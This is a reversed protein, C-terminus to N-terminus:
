NFIYSILRESDAGQEIVFRIIDWDELDLALELPLYEIDPHSTSLDIDDQLITEVEAEIM